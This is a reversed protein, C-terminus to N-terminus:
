VIQTHYQGAGRTVRPPPQGGRRVAPGLICVESRVPATHHYGGGERIGGGAFPLYHKYTSPSISGSSSHGIDSFGALVSGSQVCSLPYIRSTINMGLSVDILNNTVNLILFFFFYLM